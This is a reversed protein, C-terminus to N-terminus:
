AMPHNSSNLRVEIPEGPTRSRANRIPHTRHRVEECLHDNDNYGTECDGKHLCWEHVSRLCITRVSPSQVANASVAEFAAEVQNQYTGRRPNHPRYTSATPQDGNNSEDVHETNEVGEISEEASRTEPATDHNGRCRFSGEWAASVLERSCRGDEGDSEAWTRRERLQREVFCSAADRERSFDWSDGECQWGALQEHASEECHATYTYQEHTSSRTRQVRKSTLVQRQSM